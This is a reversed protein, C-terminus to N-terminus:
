AIPPVGLEGHIKSVDESSLGLMGALAKMHLKEAANDVSIALLSVAYFQKAMEAGEVEAVLSAAPRPHELEKALEAQEDPGVGTASLRGLIDAREKEDITGDAAAAAVMARVLLLAGKQAAADPGAAATAAVATPTGPAATASVGGAGHSTVVGSADFIPPPPPEVYGGSPTVPAGPTAPFGGGAAAAPATPAPAAAHGQTGPTAAPPAGYAGGPPQAIPAHPNTVWSPPGMPVAPAGVSGSQYEYGPMSGFGQTQMGGSDGVLGKVFGGIGGIGGGQGQPAGQPGGPAGGWPAGPAPPSGGGWAGQNPAVQQGGWGPPAAPQQPGTFHKYAMYGLGGVAALGGVTAVTGLVGSGSSERRRGFGSGLMGGLLSSADFM